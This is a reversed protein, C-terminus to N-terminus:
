GRPPSRILSSQLNARSARLHERALDAARAEDAESIAELLARHERGVQLTREPTVAQSPVEAESFDRIVAQVREVVSNHAARCVQLHFQSGLRLLEDAAVGQASLSDIQDLTRRMAELDAAQRRRAALRAIEVELVERMEYIDELNHGDAVLIDRLDRPLRPESVYIGKGRRVEVRGESRLSQLAERISTRGVQMKLALDRESPLREGPRIRGSDIAATLEERVRESVASQSLTPWSHDAPSAGPTATM